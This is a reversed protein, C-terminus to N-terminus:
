IYEDMRALVFADKKTLANLKRYVVCFRWYGNKKNEMGVVPKKIRPYHSFAMFSTDARSEKKSGVKINNIEKNLLKRLEIALGDVPLTSKVCAIKSNCSIKNETNVQQNFLTDL